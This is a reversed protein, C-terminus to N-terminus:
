TKEKKKGLFKGAKNEREPIWKIVITKKMGGILAWCSSAIDRFAAKNINWEHNLQNVVLKSDSLIEVHRADTVSARILAALVARYEAENHSIGKKRFKRVTGTDEVYFCYSGDGSGDTYIRM